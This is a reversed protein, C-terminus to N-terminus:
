WEFYMNINKLCICIYLIFVFVLPQVSRDFEVSYTLILYRKSHLTSNTKAPPIHQTGGGPRHSKKNRLAELDSYTLLDLNVTQSGQTCFLVTSQDTKNTNTLNNTNSTNASYSM